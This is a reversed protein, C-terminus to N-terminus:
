LAELREVQKQLRNSIRLWDTGCPYSFAYFSEFRFHIPRRWRGFEVFLVSCGKRSCACRVVTGFHNLIWYIM